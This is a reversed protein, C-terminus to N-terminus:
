SSLATPLLYREGFMCAYIFTYIYINTKSELFILDYISYADIHAYVTTYIVFYM